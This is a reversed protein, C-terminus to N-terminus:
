QDSLEIDDQTEFYLNSEVTRDVGRDRVLDAFMQQGRDSLGQGIDTSVGLRGRGADGHGRLVLDARDADEVVADAEIEAVARRRVTTKAEAIETAPGLLQLALQDDLVPWLSSTSEEPSHWERRGSAM